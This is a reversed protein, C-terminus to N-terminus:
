SVVDRLVSVIVDKWRDIGLALTQIVLYDGFRDVILGPLLDAEGFVLRHSTVGPLVMKRYEYAARIRRAFFAEGIEEERRTLIRVTIQSAPNIYGRGIFKGRFDVVDVMDGPEYRGNVELIETRYVWPHGAAVRQHLGKRLQVVAM